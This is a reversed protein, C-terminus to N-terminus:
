GVVDERRDKRAFNLGRTGPAGPGGPPPPEQAIMEGTPTLVMEVNDKGTHELDVLGKRELKEALTKQAGSIRVRGGVSFTYRLVWHERADVKAKDSM